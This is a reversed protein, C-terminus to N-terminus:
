QISPLTIFQDPGARAVLEEQVYRNCLSDLITEAKARAYLEQHGLDNLHM